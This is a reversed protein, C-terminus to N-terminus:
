YVLPCVQCCHLGYEHFTNMYHNFSIDLADAIDHITICCGASCTHFKISVKLFQLLALTCEDLSTMRWHNKAMKLILVGNLIRTHNIANNSYVQQLM